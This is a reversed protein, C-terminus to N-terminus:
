SVLYNEEYTILEEPVLDKFIDTVVGKDKHLLRINLYEYKKHTPVLIKFEGDKNETLKSLAINEQPVVEITACCKYFLKKFEELDTLWRDPNDYIMRAIFQPSLFHDLTVRKKKRKNVLAASSIYGTKNPQGSCFVADYLLRTMYRQTRSDAGNWHHLVGNMADFTIPVAFEWNFTMM